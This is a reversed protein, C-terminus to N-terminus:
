RARAGSARPRSGRTRWGPHHAQGLRRRPFVAGSGSIIADADHDIVSSKQDALPTIVFEGSKSQCRPWHTPAPVSPNGPFVLGGDRMSSHPQPRRHPRQHPTRIWISGGLVVVADAGRVLTRMACLSVAARRARRRVPGRLAGCRGGLWGGGACRRDMRVGRTGFWGVSSPRSRTSVVGPGGFRDCRLDAAACDGLRRVPFVVTGPVNGGMPLSGSWGSGLGGCGAWIPRRNRHSCCAILAAYFRGRCACPPM